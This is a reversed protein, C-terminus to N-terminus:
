VQPEAAHTGTGSTILRGATGGDEDRLAVALEHVLDQLRDRYAEAAALMRPLMLLGLTTMALPIVGVKLTMAPQYRGWQQWVPDSTLRAIVDPGLHRLGVPVAESTGTMSAMAPWLGMMVVMPQMAMAGLAIGASHQLDEITCTALVESYRSISLADAVQAWADTGELEAKRQSEILQAVDQDGLVGCVDFAQLLDEVSAENGDAMVRFVTRVAAHEKAPSARPRERVGNVVDILDQWVNPAANRAARGAADHRAQWGEDGGGAGVALKRAVRDLQAGFATRVRAADLHQGRAFREIVHGGPLRRGQRAQGALGTAIVLAAEDLDSSSGLGRGLARRRNRPLLGGARWRELQYPSARLGRDALAAILAM